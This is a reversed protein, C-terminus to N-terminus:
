SCIKNCVQMAAASALLERCEDLMTREKAAVGSLESVLAKTGEVQLVNLRLDHTLGEFM